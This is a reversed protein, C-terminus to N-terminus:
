MIATCFTVASVLMGFANCVIMPWDNKEKLTAYLVWMACNLATAFPLLPSGTQGSLNLRIQDLYTSFMLVAAISAMWGVLTLTRCHLAAQNMSPQNITTQTLTTQTM